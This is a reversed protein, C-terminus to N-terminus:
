WDLKVVQRMQAEFSRHSGAFEHVFLLPLGEGAEEYHLKVGDDARITPM